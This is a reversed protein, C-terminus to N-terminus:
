RWEDRMKLQYDLGDIGFKIKGFYKDLNVPAKKRPLKTLEEDLKSRSTSKNVEIIKAM